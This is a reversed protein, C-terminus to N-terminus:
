DPFVGEQQSGGAWAVGGISVDVRHSQVGGLMGNFDTLTPEVRLDLREAAAALIDSDLGSLKGATLSTYPAYPQIAVRIVGPDLTDLGAAEASVPDNGCAALTATAVLALGVLGVAPRTTSSKM